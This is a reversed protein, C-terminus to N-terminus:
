VSFPTSPPPLLRRDEEVLPAWERPGRRQDALLAGGDVYELILYLKESAPEDIVDHLRVVNPHRLQKMIAIESSVEELASRFAGADADWRRMRALDRKRFVKM